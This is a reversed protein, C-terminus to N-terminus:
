VFAAPDEIARLQSLRVWGKVIRYILWVVAVALILFGILIFTTAVGIVIWLLGFWFTRMQWEYHSEQWTGVADDRKFYAIAVGVIATFGNVVSAAYLAYVLHLWLPDPQDAVIKPPKAKIPVAGSTFLDALEPVDGAEAWAEGAGEAALLTSRALRGEALLAELEAWDFPGFVQDGYKLRWRRPQEDSTM